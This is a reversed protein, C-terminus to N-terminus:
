TIYFDRGSGDSSYKFAAAALRPAPLKSRFSSYVMQRRHTSESLNLPGFGGNDSAIYRDRGLGNPQYHTIKPDFTRSLAQLPDMQM